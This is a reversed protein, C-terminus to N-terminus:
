ALTVRKTAGNIRVCLQLTDSRVWIMNDFLNVPDAPLVQVATAQAGVPLRLSADLQPALGVTPVASTKQRLVSLPKAFDGM